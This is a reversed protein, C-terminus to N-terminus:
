YIYLYIAEFTIVHGNPMQSVSITFTTKTMVFTTSTIIVVGPPADNAPNYQNYQYYVYPSTLQPTQPSLVIPGCAVVSTIAGNGNYEYMGIYVLAYKYDSLNHAISWSQAMMAQSQFRANYYIARPGSGGITMPPDKFQNPIFAESM